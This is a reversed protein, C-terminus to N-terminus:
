WGGPQGRRLQLVPPLLFSKRLGEGQGRGDLPVSTGALPFLSFRMEGDFTGSHIEMLGGAAGRIVGFQGGENNGFRDM